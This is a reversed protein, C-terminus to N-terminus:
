KLLKTIQKKLNNLNTDCMTDYLHAGGYYWGNNRQVITFGKYLTSWRRDQLM